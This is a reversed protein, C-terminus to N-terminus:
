NALRNFACLICAHILLLPQMESHSVVEPLFRFPECLLAAPRERCQEFIQNFFFSLANSTSVLVFAVPPVSM